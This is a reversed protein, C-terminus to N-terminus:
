LLHGVYVELRWMYIHGMCMHAFVFIYEGYVYVQLSFFNSVNRNEYKFNGELIVMNIKM